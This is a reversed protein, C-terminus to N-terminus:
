YYVPSVYSQNGPVLLFLIELVKLNGCIYIYIYINFITDKPVFFQEIMASISTENETYYSIIQQFIGTNVMLSFNDYRRILLSRCLQKWEILTELLLGCNIVSAVYKAQSPRNTPPWCLLLLLANVHIIKLQSCVMHPQNQTNDCLPSM